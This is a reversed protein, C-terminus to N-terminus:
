TVPITPDGRECFTHCSPPLYKLVRCHFVDSDAFHFFLPISCMPEGFLFVHPGIHPVKWNTSVKSISITHDIYEYCLSVPMPNIFPPNPYRFPSFPSHFVDTRRFPVCLPRHATGKLKYHVKTNLISGKINILFFSVKSISITHDIYEYCLSVPMPNIFPPNPYRFPSFPSHFVDTRRFPVCPRPKIFPPNPYPHTGEPKLLTGLVPLRLM